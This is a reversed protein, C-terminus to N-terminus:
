PLLTQILRLKESRTLKKIEAERKRANSEGMAQEQWVCVVPLRSRTYKAGMGTNHKQLRAKLDTTIGAYLTADACRLLYVFWTSM